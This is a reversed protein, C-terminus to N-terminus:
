ATREEEYDHSGGNNDHEAILRFGAQGLLAPYTDDGLVHPRRGIM